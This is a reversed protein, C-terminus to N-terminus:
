FTYTWTATMRYETELQPGDLWQYVPIGGEFALKQGALIGETAFLNMGFLTDLRHGARKGPDATPVVAPNLRPDSGHINTWQSWEPRVSFSLWDLVLRAVWASVRYEDGLRYENDNEDLRITGSASVGWLWRDSQGLYTVGPLLEYSGSGLQMPYPLRVAGGMSMPTEDKEDISGSPFGVGAELIVRHTEDRYLSYLAKFRIDGLGRSRTTFDMGMRTTHDMSKRLYPIMGMLTIDDSVAYMVDIMHMEMDMSTPVVMFDQLVESRSAQRTGELNGSMGMRMYQYGVMWEGKDHTHHINTLSMGTLRIEALENLSLATLDDDSQAAATSAAFLALALLSLRCSSRRFGSFGATRRAFIRTCSDSM